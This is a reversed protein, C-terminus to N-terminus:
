GSTLSQFLGNLGIAVNGAGTPSVPQNYSLILNSNAVNLKAPGVTFLSGTQTINNNVFFLKSGIKVSDGVFPKHTLNIANDIKWLSYDGGRILITDGGLVLTSDNLKEARRFETRGRGKNFLFGPVTQTHNEIILEATDSSNTIKVSDAKITYNYQAHLPKELCLLALLFLIRKM